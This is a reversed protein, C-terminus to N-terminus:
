LDQIFRQAYSRINKGNLVHFRRVKEITQNSFRKLPIHIIKKGYNRALRRWTLRPACPAVVTVNKEKSHFFAAELLKEELTESINIRPDQWIDPIPRPPYIMMCGGYTAQGIGPGILQEMYETAYFCLTSEENHEAYWTQCWNYKSPEPEPDFLFVIIEVQGRSPPIEKVYIDGTYWHRLTDRIDIGDKVSSTFKETRALDHSLLLKTQERVHTNLNEIKEDEPPWSCQGYPDWRHQWKEQTRIDPDPKLDLTRWEYQTESLRNKMTVPEAGEEGTLAQDIGLSLSEPLIDNSEFPYERSAELVAVAFPDGGFQKAANVLTFLDPLLRSEMLTLNRIYQLLAQFTQSTLNHYRVKHKKIFLERARLLIEKVGDVPANNDPKLEQRKKEYLYTVYPFETLAFFLTRHDVGFLSPLGEAKQPQRIELREDYAEKIWPWDLISCLCIIKTYDMELQHLQYAMWRARWFHQSKEEPRKLTVLLTSIFKEYSLKSLAFSDPFHAARKEFNEASWDIFHRPIGEQMAIRLGMIVPQSPDIPVYNVGGNQESQCSLSISPLADIGEEVTQKFEPPLAVALCDCSFSLLRQRVERAFSGSGHIVPIFQIRDSLKLIESM